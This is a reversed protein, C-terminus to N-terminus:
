TVEREWGLADPSQLGQSFSWSYGADCSGCLLAGRFLLNDTTVRCHTSVDGKHAPFGHCQGSVWICGTGCPPEDVTGKCLTPSHSRRTSRQHAEATVSITFNVMFSGDKMPTRCSGEPCPTHHLVAVFTDNGPAEITSICLPSQLTLLSCQAKHEMLDGLVGM